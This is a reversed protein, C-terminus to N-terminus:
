GTLRRQSLAFFDVKSGDGIYLASRGGVMGSTQAREAMVAFTDKPNQETFLEASADFAGCLSFHALSEIVPVPHATRSADVAACRGFQWCSM